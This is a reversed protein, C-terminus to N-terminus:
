NIINTDSAITSLSAFLFSGGRLRYQHDRQVIECSPGQPLVDLNSPPSLLRRRVRLTRSELVLDKRSTYLGHSLQSLVRSTPPNNRSHACEYHEEGYM